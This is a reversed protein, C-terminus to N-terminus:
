HPPALRWVGGTTSWGPRYGVAGTTAPLGLVVTGTLQQGATLPAGPFPDNGTVCDPPAAVDGAVTGDEAVHVFDAPGVSREGGVASVDAGTTVTLRLEVLHGNVAVVAPDACTVDVTIEEVTVTLVLEGTAPDRVEMPQGAALPADRVAPPEETSPQEGPPEEAPPEEASPQEAPTAASPSQPPLGDAPAAPAASPPATPPVPIVPEPVAPLPAPEVVPPQDLLPDDWSGVDVLPGPPLDHGHISAAGAVAFWTESGPPVVGIVPIALPGMQVDESPRWSDTGDDAVVRTAESPGPPLGVGGLSVVAATGLAGTASAPVRVSRRAAVQAHDRALPSPAPARSIRGPM